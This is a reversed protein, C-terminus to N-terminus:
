FLVPIIQVWLLPPDLMRLRPRRLRNNPYNKGFAAHFYFNEPQSVARTWQVGKSGGLIERVLDVALFFFFVFFFTVQFCLCFISGCM